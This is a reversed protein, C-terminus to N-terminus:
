IMTIYDPMTHGVRKYPNVRRFARKDVKVKRASISFPGSLEHEPQNKQVRSFPSCENGKIDREHYAWNVRYRQERPCM